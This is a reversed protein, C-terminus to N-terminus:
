NRQAAAQEVVQRIADIVLGPDESQLNHGSRKAVILKAGPTADIWKQYDALKWRNAQQHLERMNPTLTATVESYLSPQGAALLITPVM